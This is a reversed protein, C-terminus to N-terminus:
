QETPTATSSQIGTNMYAGNNNVVCLHEMVPRSGSLAQMSIDFTGGDGALIVVTADEKGQRDLAAQM